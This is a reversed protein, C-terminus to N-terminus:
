TLVEPQLSLAFRGRTQARNASLIEVVALGVGTDGAFTRTGGTIQYFYVGPSALGTIAASVKGAKGVQLTLNGTSPSATYAIKGQLQTKGIPTVTGRGNFDVTSGGGVFRYPGQLTGALNLAVDGVAENSGRHVQAVHHAMGSRAVAMGAGSLLEIAEMAEFALHRKSKRCTM